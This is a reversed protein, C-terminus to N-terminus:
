KIEMADYFHILWKEVTMCKPCLKPFYDLKEYQEAWKIPRSAECLYVTGCKCTVRCPLLMMESPAEQRKGLFPLLDALSVGEPLEIEM